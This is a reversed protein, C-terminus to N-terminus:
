RPSGPALRYDGTRTKDIFRVVLRDGVGDVHYFMWDEFPYGTQPKPHSEIEDPPGYVVYMHGRDTTWGPRGSALHFRENAYAIRRYHEKKFANEVTGPM